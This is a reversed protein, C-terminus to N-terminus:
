DFCRWSQDPTRTCLAFIAASHSLYYTEGRQEYTFPEDAFGGLGTRPVASLKDLSAPYRGTRRHYDELSEAIQDGRQQARSEQWARRKTSAVCSATGAVCWLAALALLRRDRLALGILLAVVSALYVLLQVAFVPSFSGAADLYWAGLVSWVLLAWFAGLAM